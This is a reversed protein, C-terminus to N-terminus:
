EVFVGIPTLRLVLPPCPLIWSIWGVPFCDVLHVGLCLHDQIFLLRVVFPKSTCLLTSQSVSAYQAGLTLGRMSHHQHFMWVM